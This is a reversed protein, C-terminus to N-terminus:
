NLVEALHCAVQHDSTLARLEPTEERCRAEAFPCRHAFPCGIRGELLNPPESRTEPLPANWRSGPTAAFMLRTYPHLPRKLLERSAATEMVRGGYLVMIRDGFYRASALDHTIYLYSLKFERKLENMLELIGARISVDLMSIPEDAVIFRPNAALARAIAVRQRQGGSLEHPYKGRFTQVPSLGVRELLGDVADSLARGRYGQFKKLPPALHQELTRVPNLSGFPDQFVMQTVRRYQTLARGRLHTVDQGGVSVRGGSPELIRVLTRGITSKGSGSEGVLALVEGDAIQFSVHHVPTIFQRGGRTRVPFRLILDDVEVFPSPQAM